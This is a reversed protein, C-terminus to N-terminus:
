REPLWLDFFFLAGSRPGAGLGLGSLEDDVYVVRTPDWTGRTRRGEGCAGSLLALLLERVCLVEPVEGAARNGFATHSTWNSSSGTMAAM